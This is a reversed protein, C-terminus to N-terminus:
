TTNEKLKEIKSFTIQKINCVSLSGSLFVNNKNKGLQLVRDYYKKASVFHLQSM